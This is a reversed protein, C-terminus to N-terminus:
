LAGDTRVLAVRVAQAPGSSRIQVIKKTSRALDHSIMRSRAPDHQITHITSSRAPAHSGYSKRTSM